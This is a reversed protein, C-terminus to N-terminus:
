RFAPLRKRIRSLRTNANRYSALSMNTHIMVESRNQAGAEVADLIALVESDSKAAERLALRYEAVRAIAAQDDERAALVAEVEARVTRANEGGDFPIYQRRSSTAQDCMFRSWVTARIHDLLSREAPDWRRAGSLTDV